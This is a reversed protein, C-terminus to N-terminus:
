KDLRGIKVCKTFRPIGYESLEFYEITALQGIYKEQNNWIETCEEHSFKMGAKFTEKGDKTKVVIAGVMNGRKSEEFGAIEFEDDEKTKYKLLQWTRKNEYGIGLQRIIAGEEGAKLFEIFYQKLINEEAYDFISEVLKIYNFILSNCFSQIFKYREEYGKESQIDYINYKILKLDELDQQTKKEKKLLGNLKNFSIVNDAYLEGDLVVEGIWKCAIYGKRLEEEIHIIPLFLDGKRTYLKISTENIVCVCRNGDLKKGVAVLKGRLKLKDLNKSGKQKELPDYKQALMPQMVGSGLEHQSKIENIDEVYGARIKLDLESQADKLAQEYYNTQNAKGLNKGEKVVTTTTVLKGDLKGSKIIIEAHTTLDIVEISWQKIKGKSDKQFLLHKM